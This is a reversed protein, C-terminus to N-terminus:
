FVGEVRQLTLACDRCQMDINEIHLVDWMSGDALCEVRDGRKIDARYTIVATATDIVTLVGDVVSQTGGKTKFNSFSVGDIPTYEARRRNAQGEVFSRRYFQLPVRRISTDLYRQAM